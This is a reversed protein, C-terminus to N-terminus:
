QAAKWHRLWKLRSKASALSRYTEPDRGTILLVWKRSGTHIIEADEFPMDTGM